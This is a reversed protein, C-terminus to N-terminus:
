PQRESISNAIQAAFDAVPNHYFPDSYFFLLALGSIICLLFVLLICRLNPAPLRGLMKFALSFPLLVLSLLSIVGRTCANCLSALGHFRSRSSRLSVHGYTRQMARSMIRQADIQAQIKPSRIIIEEYPDPLESASPHLSRRRFVPIGGPYEPMETAPFRRVRYNETEFLSSNSSNSPSIVDGKGGATTLEKKKPSASRQSSTSSTFTAVSASTEQVIPREKSTSIRSSAFGSTRKRPSDVIVPPEISEDVGNVDTELFKQLKNFLLIRTTATVPPVTTM